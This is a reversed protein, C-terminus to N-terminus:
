LVPKLVKGAFLISATATEQIFFIFPRNVTFEQIVPNGGFKNAIEFVTSAYAETGMENVFIGAKQIVDSVKLHAGAESARSLGPLSANDSFIDQIGMASLTTKLNKNFDFKFKPLTVKLKTESMRFQLRKIEESQLVKDFSQEVKGGTENRKLLIFMSFKDGKYPLRLIKVDLSNHEYYGFYETLQMYRVRCQTQPTTFFIGEYTEQFQHQWLGNFYIVNALLLEANEINEKVVLNQLKGKTVNKCWGNIHSVAAQADKFNLSMIHTNYINALDASYKQRPKISTDTFIKTELNLITSSSEAALSALVNKYFDRLNDLSNTVALTRILETQTQTNNGAAEALTALIIKVSFPSIVVNTPEALVAKLLQWSFNDGADGTKHSVFDNSDDYDYFYNNYYFQQPFMRFIGEPITISKAEATNAVPLSATAPFLLKTDARIWVAWFNFMALTYYILFKLKLNMTITINEKKCIVESNSAM